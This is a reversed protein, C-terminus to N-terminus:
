IHCLAANATLANRESVVYRVGVTLGVSRPFRVDSFNLSDYVAFMGGYADARAAQTGTFYFARLDPEDTNM